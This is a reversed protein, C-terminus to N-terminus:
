WSGIAKIHVSAKALEKQINTRPHTYLWHFSIGNHRRKGSSTTFCNLDMAYWIQTLGIWVNIANAM